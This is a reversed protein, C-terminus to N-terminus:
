SLQSGIRIIDPCVVDDDAYGSLLPRSACGPTLLTVNCSRPRGRVLVTLLLAGLTHKCGGALADLANDLTRASLIKEWTGRLGASARLASFETHPGSCHLLCMTGNAERCCEKPAQMKPLSSSDTAQLFAPSLLCQPLRAVSIEAQRM